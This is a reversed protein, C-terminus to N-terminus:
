LANRLHSGLEWRTVDGVVNAEETRHRFRYFRIAHVPENSSSMPGIHTVSRIAQLAENVRESIGSSCM